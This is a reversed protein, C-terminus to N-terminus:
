ERRCWFERPTLDEQHSQAACEGDRGDVVVLREQRPTSLWLPVMPSLSVQVPFAPSPPQPQPAMWTKLNNTNAIFNAVEDYVSGKQAENTVTFRQQVRSGYEQQNVGQGDRRPQM